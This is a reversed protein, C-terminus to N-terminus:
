KSFTALGGHIAAIETEDIDCLLIPLCDATMIALALNKERTISADAIVVPKNHCTIEVVKNGHVQELWQINAKSRVKEQIFVKYINVTKIM